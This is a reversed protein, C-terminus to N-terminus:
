KQEPKQLAFNVPVMYWVDVAKGGQMGPKFAKLHSVDRIAEADLAPDIGKIVSIGEVNGETNVYFRVVVKGEIGKAKAEEPYRINDQISKLLESEGGPYSPMQEVVVFPMVMKITMGNSFDPKVTLPPYGNQSFMLSDEPPINLEFRGYGDSMARISSNLADITVGSLPKSNDGLVVGTVKKLEQSALPVESYGGTGSLPENYRYEPKAFAYFVIVFLPLVFLMKLKRYPSRVIKKMMEFRKKNLSFNFTNTLSFVTAGFLQNVLVAKYVAPDPTRQLAVEDAIYEHNQRVFSAYIWVFPNAWQILRLVEAFLLDVWHKQSIHVEEHSMIIKLETENVSPNIFVYRFFSFSGPFEPARIIKLQDADARTRNIAAALHVIHNIFRFTFFAIGALYLFLLVYRFGFAEGAAGPSIEAPIAQALNERAAPQTAAEVYYRITVLPLLVSALMGAVLFYRKLRFFRENQLFLFYVVAFGTLWLASKLLYLGFAEM